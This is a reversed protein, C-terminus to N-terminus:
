SAGGPAFRKLLWAGGYEQYEQRTILLEKLAVKNGALRAGGLWTSKIPSCITLLISCSRILHCLVVYEPAVAVRVPCEAPALQRIESSSVM